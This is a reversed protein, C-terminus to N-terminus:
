PTLWSTFWPLNRSIGFVMLMAALIWLCVPHHISPVLNQRSIYNIIRGLFHCLVLGVFIWLMPNLRFAMEFRGNLLHHTARLGGCGPCQWGTTAFLLCKPYFAHQEPPFRFLLYALVVLIGALAAWIWQTSPWGLLDQSRNRDQDGM